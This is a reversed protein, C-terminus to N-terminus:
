GTRRRIADPSLRPSTVDVNRIASKGNEGAHDAPFSSSLTRSTPCPSESNTTDGCPLVISVIGFAGGGDILMTAAHCSLASRHPLLTRRNRLAFCDQCLDLHLPPKPRDITARSESCRRRRVSVHADPGRQRSPQPGLSNEHRDITSRVRLANAPM